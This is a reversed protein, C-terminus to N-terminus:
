TTFTAVCWRLMYILVRDDANTSTQLCQILEQYQQMTTIMRWTGEKGSQDVADALTNADDCNGDSPAPKCLVHLVSLDQGFFWYSNGHRDKGIMGNRVAQAHMQEQVTIARNSPLFSFFKARKGRPTHSCMRIFEVHNARSWSETTVQFKVAIDSYSLNRTLRMTVDHFKSFITNSLCITISYLCFYDLM